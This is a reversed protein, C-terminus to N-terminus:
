KLLSKYLRLHDELPKESFKYKLAFYEKKINRRLKSNNKIAKAIAKAFSGVTPEVIYGTKGDKVIDTLGGRNSSVVPVGCALSELATRGFSEPYVSPCVELLSKRRLEMVEEPLKRSMFGVNKSIGLSRCLKEYYEKDGSGVVLLRCDPFDKLVEKFASLLIDLGKGSSMKTAYLITKSKLIIKPVKTPFTYINHIIKTKFGNAAFLKQQATSSVILVDAQRAFFQLINTRIRGAFAYAVQLGFNFPNKNDVKDQWYMWFDERFYDALGCTHGHQNKTLCFGYNCILQADRFTVMVPVKLIKGAWIASPLSFLGQVHIIQIKKVWVERAIQVFLILFYVLNFYWSPSLQDSFKKLKVYFPFRHIKIGALTELIGSGYDPTLVHMTEGCSSLSKALEMTSIEGGGHIYPYFYETLFLIRM